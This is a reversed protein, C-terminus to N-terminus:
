GAPRVLRDYTHEAPGYTDSAMALLRDRDRVIVRGRVARIALQEELRHLADTISSRRVGLMLRFEDHTMRIDDDRVRDHYLLIWRALRREVPHALSSVVTRSMQVFFVQVFRLLADRLTDSQGVADRLHGAGISLATAPEARLVIQHCSRKEGLLLPWGVFGEAGVLGIAYQGDGGLTDLVAAIGAEPFYVREIPKGAAILTDGMAFSGRELHPALLAQDGSSLSRLLMNASDIRRTTVAQPRVITLDTGM